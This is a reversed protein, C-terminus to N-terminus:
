KKAIVFLETYLGDKGYILISLFKRIIDIPFYFLNKRITLKSGKDYGIHKIEFLNKSILKQLSSITFPRVHTPDNWFNASGGLNNINPTIILLSGNKCMADYCKKIFFNMRDCPIHEILHSCIIGGFSNQNEQLFSIADKQLVRLNKEQCKKICSVDSDIGIASYDNETLLRIFTGDGCGIDLIQTDKSFYKLYKKRLQIIRNYYESTM